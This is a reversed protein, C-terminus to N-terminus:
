RFSDGIKITKFDIMENSAPSLVSSILIANTGTKVIIGDKNKGVVNGPKDIYSPMDPILFAKDIILENGSLFTRAGPGPVAIGRVFNFIRESSWNWDITEDGPLRRSCYFGTPHISAQQIRKANGSEIQCLAEYLTDACLVYAKNLLDGYRDDPAIDQTKQLIIDGTDIGEDVYHVTVGFEKEGNILVWNLINRGRYFPLAGAHCNIFGKPALNIIDSKLIQNFSMSVNIDVNFIRINNLFEDSNVNKHKLLPVNLKQAYEALVKDASDYRVVIFAIEFRDNKLIKELSKHAWPGDAFYGIKM